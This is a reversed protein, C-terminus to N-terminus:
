KTRKISRTKCSALLAKAGRIQMRKVPSPLAKLTRLWNEFNRKDVFQVNNQGEPYDIYSNEAIVTRQIPLEVDHDRFIRSVVKSMRNASILPNLVKDDADEANQWFHSASELYVAGEEGKLFALCFITSPTLLLVELEVETKEFRLVPRYMVFFSDPFRQLLGRLRTDMYYTSQVFSRESITTSAWQIQALFLKDLFSQKLETEAKALGSGDPSVRQGMTNLIAEWRRKKLRVFKSSYESLDKEYRSVYDQLKILQAM